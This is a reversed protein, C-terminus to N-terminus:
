KLIYEEYVYHGMKNYQSSKYQKLKEVLDFPLAVIANNRKFTDIIVWLTGDNSTKEFVQSFVSKLDQLYDNYKQGYGIQGDVGYDKMDFYPPSTITTQITIDTPLISSMKRSDENYVVNYKKKRGM